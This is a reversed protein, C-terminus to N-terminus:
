PFFALKGNEEADNEEHDKPDHGENNVNAKEDLGFDIKL